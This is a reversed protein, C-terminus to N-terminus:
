EFVELKDYILPIKQRFDEVTPHILEFMQPHVTTANDRLKFVHGWERLNASMIIEVALDKSFYNSAEEPKAGREIEDYYISEMFLNQRLWQIDRDSYEPTAIWKEKDWSGYMDKLWCPNIFTLGDKYKIYRSSEVSFSALRHRTIESLIRLNTKFLVTISVHELVSLHGRDLISKIFKDASGECIKDRSQYCTRGCFEIKKLIAQGDIPDLIKHSQKIVKM